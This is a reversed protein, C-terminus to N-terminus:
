HGPVTLEETWVRVKAIKDPTGPFHIVVQDKSLPPVTLGAAPGNPRVVFGEPDLAMVEMGSIRLPRDMKNEVAVVVETDSVGARVERVSLAGNAQLEDLRTIIIAGDVSEGQKRGEEVGEKVGTIVEKSTEITGGVVTSTIEKCGVLLVLWFRM